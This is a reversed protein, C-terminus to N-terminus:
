TENRKKRERQYRERNILLHCKKCYSYSIRGNRKCSSFEEIPKTLKCRPCTKETYDAPSKRPKKWHYPRKTPKPEKVPLKVKYDCFKLSCEWFKVFKGYRCTECKKTWEAPNFKKEM